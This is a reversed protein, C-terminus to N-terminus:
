PFSSLMVVAVYNATTGHVNPPILAGLKLDFGLHNPRKNQGDVSAEYLRLIVSGPNEVPM